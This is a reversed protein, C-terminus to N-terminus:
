HSRRIVEGTEDEKVGIIFAAEVVVGPTNMTINQYRQTRGGGDIIVLIVSVM